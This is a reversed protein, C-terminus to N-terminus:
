PAPRRRWDGSAIPRATRLDGAYVYTWALVAARGSPTVRVLRRAYLSGPAGFGRFGEVADLRAVADGLATDGFDVLEGQVTAGSPRRELILGPYDGLDVLLGPCAAAVIAEPAHHLVAPHRSEGRMLTGYVFFRPALSRPPRGAVLDDLPAPDLGHEAHLRRVVELDCPPPLRVPLSTGDPRLADLDPAEGDDSPSLIGAVVHGPRPVVAVRGAAPLAHARDPLFAPGAARHPTRLLV